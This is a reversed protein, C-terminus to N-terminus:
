HPEQRLGHLAWRALFASRNSSAADIRAVLDAPLTVNVRMSRETLSAPLLVLKGGATDISEILAPAPVAQREAAFDDLVEQLIAAADTLAEAANTGSGNVNVGPVSVGFLGDRDVPWLIAPYYTIPM